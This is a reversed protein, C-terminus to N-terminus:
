LKYVIITLTNTLSAWRTYNVQIDCAAPAREWRKDDFCGSRADAESTSSILTKRGMKSARSHQLSSSTISLVRM